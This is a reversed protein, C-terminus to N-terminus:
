AMASPDSIVQLAEKLAAIEAERRKTREEFTSRIDDCSPRLDMLYQGTQHLELLNTKMEGKDDGLQNILGRRESTKANKSNTCDKNFQANRALLDDHANVGAAEDAIITRLAEGYREVLDELMTQASAAGATGASYSAFPTSGLGAPQAAGEQLLGYQGSLAAQAQQIAAIVEEHDAKSQVYVAHESARIEKAIRTEEKVRAIESTLFEVESKLGAVQTTLSEITSMLQHVSKERAEKAATSTEKETECWEHQSTEAAAESELRTILDNLLKLVPGFKNNDFFSQQQTAFYDQKLHTALQTLVPNNMDRGLDILKALIRSVRKRAGETLRIQTESASNSASVLDLQFFSAASQVWGQLLV